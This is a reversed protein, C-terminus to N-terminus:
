PAMYGNSQLRSILNNLGGTTNNILTQLALLDNVAATNFNGTSLSCGAGGGFGNSGLPQSGEASMQSLNGLFNAQSNTLGLMTNGGSPGNGSANFTATDGVSLDGGSGYLNGQIHHDGQVTVNGGITGGNAVLNVAPATDSIHQNLRDEVAYAKSSATNAAPNASMATMTGWLVLLALLSFGWFAGAYWWATDASFFLLLALMKRM